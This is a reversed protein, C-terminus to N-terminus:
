TANAVRQDGTAAVHRRAAVPRPHHGDLVVFWAALGPVSRRLLRREVATAARMAAGDRTRGWAALPLTLLGGYETTLSEFHNRVLAVDHRRLPAEDDSRLERTRRRYANLVPNHGLPELFVGRGMPRLVRCMEGVIRALDLHHLIGSGCVVDFSAEAFRLDHADMVCTSVDLTREAAARDTIEIAAASIDIAVVRDGAAALDLARGGRGCGIELVDRGGAGDAVRREYADFVHRVARYYPWTRARADTTFAEEHFAREREIRDGEM